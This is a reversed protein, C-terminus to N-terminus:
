LEQFAKRFGNGTIKHIDLFVQTAFCLWGSIPKQCGAVERLGAIMTDEGPIAFGFLGLYVIETITEMLIEEDEVLKQRAESYAQGSETPSSTSGYDSRTRRSAEPEVQYPFRRIWKYLIQTTPMYFFSAM